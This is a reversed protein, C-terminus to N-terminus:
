RDTDQPSLDGGIEELVLRGQVLADADVGGGVTHDAHHRALTLDPRLVGVVLHEQRQAGELAFQAAPPPPAADRGGIDLRRVRVPHVLSRRLDRGQHALEVVAFRLLGVVDRDVGPRFRRQRRASWAVKVNRRAEM